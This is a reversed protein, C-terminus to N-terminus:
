RTPRARVLFQVGISSGFASLVLLIFLAPILRSQPRQLDLSTLAIGIAAMGVAIAVNAWRPWGKECLWITSVPITLLLATLALSLKWNSPGWFMSAGASIGILLLALIWNSTTTQEPSLAHRGYKSLRLMLNFLPNALWTMWVFLGYLVVIPLVYPGLAPNARASGRLVQLGFWGGLVIASQTRGSLRSMWLFYALMVRYVPNRAKMAEVIGSRAWNNGPDLRLAERFHELARKPDNQHLYTWGQNAHTVADDPSRELQGGIASAAEARRGLHVLAIARLNVCAAHEPNVELGQDAASLAASWEHQDCRIQALLAFHDASYPDLAVAQEIAAAAETYRRRERLVAAVAYHAFAEDPASSVAERAAYEADNLRLQGLMAHAMLAHALPHRPDNALLQGLEREAEPYRGLQLLQDARLILSKTDRTTV